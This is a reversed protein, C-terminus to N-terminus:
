TSRSVEASFSFVWPVPASTGELLSFLSEADQLCGRSRSSGFHARKIRYLVIQLFYPVSLHRLYGLDLLQCRPHTHTHTHTHTCSGLSGWAPLQLDKLPVWRLAEPLGTFLRRGTFPWNQIVILVLLEGKRSLSHPCRLAFLSLIAM